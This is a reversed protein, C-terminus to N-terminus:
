VISRANGSSLQAAFCQHADSALGQQLVTLVKPMDGVLMAAVNLWLGPFVRSKLIGDPAELAVYDESTLRYWDIKQDFVQWVLYAQM